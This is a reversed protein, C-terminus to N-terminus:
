AGAHMSELTSMAVIPEDTIIRDVDLDIMRRIDAAQNVTWVGLTRGAAHMANVLKADVLRFEVHLARWPEDMALRLESRHEILLARPANPAFNAAHHLNARDFSQIMWEVHCGGLEQATRQVLRPSDPTKIEVLIANRLGCLAKSGRSMVPIRADTLRGFHDTLRVRALAEGRHRDVQGSVTTTRDLAEDHIIVPCDDLSARVDCEIWQVGASAAAQFAPLSNEPHVLHLGRHAIITPTHNAM